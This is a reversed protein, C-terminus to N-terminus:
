TNRKKIVFYGAILLAVGLLVFILPSYRKESIEKAAMGTVSKLEKPIKRYTLNSERIIGAGRGISDVYSALGNKSSPACKEHEEPMKAPFACKNADFCKRSRVGESCEQWEGCRWDSTCMTGGGGGSSGASSSSPSGSNSSSSDSSPKKYDFQVIGSHSLGEVQYKNLTSNYTCVYNNQATGDCEIKFESSSACNSSIQTIALIEEDKICIGNTSNIRDVYLTKTKGPPMRLGRVIISGTANGIQKNFTLNTLNLKHQSFDFEFKAITSNGDAFRVLMSQNFVRSLNSSSNLLVTINITSSNISTEDGLLRDVSENIGDNDSDLEPLDLVTIKFLRSDNLFGDSAAAKVTYIGSDTTTTRWEMRHSDNSLRSLNVSYYVRDGNPDSASLNIQIKETENVTINDIFALNPKKNLKIIVRDANNSENSEEVLDSIDAFASIELDSINTFNFERRIESNPNIINSKNALSLTKNDFIETFVNFAPKNGANRFSINVTVDALGYHYGDSVSIVTKLDPLSSGEFDGFSYYSTTYADNVKDVLSGNEYLEANKILYPGDLKKGHIRSGNIDFALIRKGSSLPLSINRMELINGFIDYLSLVISYDNGNLIQLSANIQMKDLKNNGNTDIGADTFELIYSKAAFDSFRYKATTFNTKITKRGIKVSNISFNGTHHTRKVTENDIGIELTQLSSAISFNERAFILSNNYSLFITVNFTGNVTSNLTLNVKLKEDAFDKVDSIKIGEEYRLYNKTPISDKRYKLSYSSNYVKISYNFQQQSLLGSDFTFNIKNAGSSLTKNVESTLVGNKDFLNVSFIFNGNANSTGLEIVLTDNIENNNKDVMYDSFLTVNMQATSTSFKYRSILDKISLSHASPVIMVLILIMAAGKHM